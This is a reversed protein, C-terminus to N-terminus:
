RPLADGSAETPHPRCAPAQRLILLAQLADTAREGKLMGPRFFDTRTRFPSGEALLDFHIAPHSTGQMLQDLGPTDATSVAHVSGNFLYSGGPYLLLTHHVRGRVPSDAEQQLRSAFPAVGKQTTAQTFTHFSGFQGCARRSSAPLTQWTRKFAALIAAERLGPDSSSRCYRVGQAAQEAIAALPEAQVGHRARGAEGQNQVQEAFQLLVEDLQVRFDSPQQGILFRSQAAVRGLEVLTEELPTRSVNALLRGLAFATVDRQHEVDIGVVQFRDSPPLTEQFRRLQRWFVRRELTCAATGQVSNMMWTLWQEDGDELYRSGLWAMSPGCEMLLCRVRGQRHLMQFYQLNVPDNWAVGHTEGSLFLDHAALHAPSLLANPVAADYEVPFGQGSLAFTTYIGPPPAPPHSSGGGGCAVTLLIAPLTGLFLPRCSM